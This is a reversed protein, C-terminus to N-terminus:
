SLIMPTGDVVIITNVNTAKDFTTLNIHVPEDHTEWTTVHVMVVSVPQIVLSM